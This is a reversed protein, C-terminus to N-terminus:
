SGPEARRGFFQAYVERVKGLGELQRQLEELRRNGLAMQREYDRVRTLDQPDRYLYEDVGTGAALAASDRAENVRTQLADKESRVGDLAADIARGLSQIRERDTKADREPSRTQFARFLTFRGALAM